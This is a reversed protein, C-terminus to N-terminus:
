SASLMFNKIMESRKMCSFYMVTQLFKCTNLHEMHNHLYLVNGLVVLLTNLSLNRLSVSFYMYAYISYFRLLVLGGVFFKAQPTRFIKM